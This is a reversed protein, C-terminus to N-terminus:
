GVGHCIAVVIKGGEYHKQVLSQLHTDDPFDYM